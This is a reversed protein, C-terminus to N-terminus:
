LTEVINNLKVKIIFQIRNVEIRFSFINQNKESKLSLKPNVHSEIMM